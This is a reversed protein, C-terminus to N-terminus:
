GLADEISLVNGTSDRVYQTFASTLAGAGDPDPQISKFLRGGDDYQFSTERGM